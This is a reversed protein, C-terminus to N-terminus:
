LSELAEIARDALLRAEHVQESVDDAPRPMECCEVRRLTERIWELVDRPFENSM